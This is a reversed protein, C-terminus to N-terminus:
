RDVVEVEIDGTKGSLQVTITANGVSKAQVEGTVNQVRAVGPNSSTWAVNDNIDEWVYKGTKEDFFKGCAQLYKGDDGVKLSLKTNSDPNFESCGWGNDKTNKIDVAELTRNVPEYVNVYFSASAEGGPVEKGRYTARIEIGNGVGRGFVFSGKVSNVYARVQDASWWATSTNVYDKSGDNYVVWATPYYAGESVPNYNVDDVIPIEVTKGTIVKGSGSANYGEQIELHDFVKEKTITFNVPNSKVTGYTAFITGQGPNLAKVFGHAGFEVLGTPEASFTVYANANVEKGDSLIATALMSGIKGVPVTVNTTGNNYTLKLREVKVAESEVYVSTSANKRDLTATIVSEGSAIANAFGSEDVAVVAANSSSWVVNNTIDSETGDSYVGYAKYQGSAGVPM